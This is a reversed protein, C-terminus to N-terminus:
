LPALRYVFVNRQVGNMVVFLDLAPVYRFRGFTGTSLQPGPDVRNEPSPARRTWRWDAPDLVHVDTGGSWAVFMGSAPHFDFGPGYAREIETDGSTVSRL